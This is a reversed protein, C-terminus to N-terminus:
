RGHRNPLSRADRFIPRSRRDDRLESPSTADIGRRRRAVTKSFMNHRVSQPDRCHSIHQRRPIIQAARPRRRCNKTSTRPSQGLKSTGRRQSDGDSAGSDRRVSRETPVDRTGPRTARSDLWLSSRQPRLGEDPQENSCFEQRSSVIHAAHQRLGRRHLGRRGRRARGRRCRHRRSAAARRRSDARQQSQSSKDSLCAENEAHDSQSNRRFRRRFRKRRPPPISRDQSRSIARHLRHARIDPKRNFSRRRSRDAGGDRPLEGDLHRRSRRRLGSRRRTQDRDRKESSCLRLLQRRQNRTSRHHRAVGSASVRRSRQHRSQLAGQQAAQGM